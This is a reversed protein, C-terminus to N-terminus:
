RRLQLGRPSPQRSSSTYTAPFLLVTIPLLLPFLQLSCISLSLSHNLKDLSYYPPNSPTTAIPGPSKTISGSPSQCSGFLALPPISSPEQLTSSQVRGRAQAPHPLDPAQLATENSVHNSSEHSSRTLHVHRGLPRTTSYKIM